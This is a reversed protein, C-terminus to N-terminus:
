LLLKIINQVGLTFYSDGKLVQNHKKQKKKQKYWKKQIFYTIVNIYFHNALSKLGLKYVCYSVMSKFKM